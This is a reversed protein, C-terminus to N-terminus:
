MKDVFLCAVGFKRQSVLIAGMLAEDTTQSPSSPLLHLIFIGFFVSLYKFFNFSGIVVYSLLRSVSANSKSANSPRSPLVQMVQMVKMAQTVGIVQMVQVM